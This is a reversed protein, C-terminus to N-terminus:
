AAGLSAVVKEWRGAEATEGSALFKDRYDVARQLRIRDVHKQLVQRLFYYAMAMIRMSRGRAVDSQVESCFCMWVQGQTLASFNTGPDGDGTRRAPDNRTTEHEVAHLPYHELLGKIWDGQDILKGYEIM